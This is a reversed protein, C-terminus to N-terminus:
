KKILEWKGNKYEAVDKIKDGVFIAGVIHPEVVALKSAEKLIRAMDLRHMVPNKAYLGLGECYIIDLLNELKDSKQNKSTDIITLGSGIHIVQGFMYDRDDEDEIIREGNRIYVMNGKEKTLKIKKEEPREKLTAVVFAITVIVAISAFISGIITAAIKVTENVQTMYYVNM